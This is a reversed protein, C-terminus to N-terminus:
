CRSTPACPRTSRWAPPPRCRWTAACPPSRGQPGDADTYTHFPLDVRTRAEEANLAPMLMAAGDATVCLLCPREDPHPHFGLLYHMHWGPGLAVVNIDGAAIAQQVAQLRM